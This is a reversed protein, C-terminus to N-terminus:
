GGFASLILKLLGVIADDIATPTFRSILALAAVAATAYGLYKKWSPAPTSAPPPVPEPQPVPVPAPPPVPKPEPKPEIPQPRRNLMLNTRWRTWQEWATDFSRLFAESTGPLESIDDCPEWAMVANVLQDQITGETGSGFLDTNLRVSYWSSLVAGFIVLREWSVDSDRCAAYALTAPFNTLHSNKMGIFANLDAPFIGPTAPERTPRASMNVDETDGQM